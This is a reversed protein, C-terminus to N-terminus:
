LRDLPSDPACHCLPVWGLGRVFPKVDTAGSLRFWVPGQEPEVELEFRFFPCCLREYSIFAVVAQLIDMENPLRLAYGTPLERVEQVSALIRAVSAQHTPRLEQPIAQVNCALVANSQQSTM